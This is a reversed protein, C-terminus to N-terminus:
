TKRIGCILASADSRGMGEKSLRDYIKKVAVTADLPTGLREAEELCIALDKRFWDVAFGFDFKRELMTASRNELQWSNAAGKKITELAPKLDIGSKEAFALGESLGSIVGAAIIQNVMKARQGSGNKGLLAIRAGYSKMMPEVRRFARKPGGVMIALCGKEAGDQGGSVPADLFEIGAKQLERSVEEALKASTTTHDIVVSPREVATVVGKEGLLVERVSEDDGVFSIVAEAGGAAEAPTSALKGPHTKLWKEAKEPDRNYASVEFGNAALHGAVPAGMVGLGIFGVKM